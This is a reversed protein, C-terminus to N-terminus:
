KQNIKELEKAELKHIAFFTMAVTLPVSYLISAMPLRSKVPSKSTEVLMSIFGYVAPSPMYGLCNYAFMAFSNASARQNEPVTNLMIGTLSPLIFGGFFLMIWVFLIYIAVDNMWPMPIVLCAVFIGINKTLQQAKRTNYGGFLSTILGGVLVGSVPATFSVVAFFSNALSKEVLLVQEMYNPCWYLVGAVVYFFGSVSLLFLIFLQNSWLDGIIDVM